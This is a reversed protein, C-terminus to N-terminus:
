QCLLSSCWCYLEGLSPASDIDDGILVTKVAVQDAKPSKKLETVDNRPKVVRYHDKLTTQTHVSPKSSAKVDALGHPGLYVEGYRKM